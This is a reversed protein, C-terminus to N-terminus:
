FPILDDEFGSSVCEVEIEQQRCYDIIESGYNQWIADRLEDLLMLVSYAEEDTYHTKLLMMKMMM